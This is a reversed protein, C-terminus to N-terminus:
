WIRLKKLKSNVSVAYKALWNVFDWKEAKQVKLILNESADLLKKM